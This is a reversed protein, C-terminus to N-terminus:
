QNKPVFYYRSEPFLWDIWWTCWSESHEAYFGVKPWEGPEKEVQVHQGWVKVVARGDETVTFVRAIHSTNAFQVLVADNIRRVPNGMEKGGAIVAPQVPVHQVIAILKGEIFQPEIVVRLGHEIQARINQYVDRQLDLIGVGCLPAEFGSVQSWGDCLQRYAVRMPEIGKYPPRM